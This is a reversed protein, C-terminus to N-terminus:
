TTSINLKYACIDSINYCKSHGALCPLQEQLSCKYNHLFNLINNLHYEDDGEPGCDSILDNVLIQSIDNGNKCTFNNLSNVADNSIKTRSVPPKYIRCSNDPFMTYFLSCTKKGLKDTVYKCHPISRNVFSTAECQFNKEHDEKDGPCDKVGDCVFTQLIHTGTKCHFLTGGAIAIVNKQPYIYIGKEQGKLRKSFRYRYINLYRKYTIIYNLDSSLIPPFIINVANFLFEFSRIDFTARSNKSLHDSKLELGFSICLLWLM